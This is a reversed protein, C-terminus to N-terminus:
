EGGKECTQGNTLVIGQLELIVLPSERGDKDKLIIQGGQKYHYYLMIVLKIALRMLYSLSTGLEQLIKDYSGVEGEGLRFTVTRRDKSNSNRSKGSGSM